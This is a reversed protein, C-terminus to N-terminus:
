HLPDFVIVALLLFRLRLTAMERGLVILTSVVLLNERTVIMQTNTLVMPEKQSKAPMTQLLVQLLYDKNTAATVFPKKAWGRPLSRLGKGEQLREEESVCKTGSAPLNLWVAITRSVLLLPCLLLQMVVLRLMVVGRKKARRVRALAGDVTRRRTRQSRAAMGTSEKESSLPHTLDGEVELEGGRLDGTGDDVTAEDDLLLVLAAAGGGDEGGSIEAVGSSELPRGNSRLGQEGRR